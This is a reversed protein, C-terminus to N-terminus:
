EMTFVTRECYNGNKFSWIMYYTGAGDSNVMLLMAQDAPDGPTLLVMSEFNPEYVGRLAEEPIPVSTGNVKVELSIALKPLGGDTGWPFAGDVHYFGNSIETIEHNEKIFPIARVQAQFGGSKLIGSHRQSEDAVIQKWDSVEKLRSEHIFASAGNYNGDFVSYWDGSM